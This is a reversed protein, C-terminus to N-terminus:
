HLKVNVKNDNEYKKLLYIILNLKMNESRFISQNRNKKDSFLCIKINVSLFFNFLFYYFFLIYKNETRSFRKYYYVDGQVKMVSLM